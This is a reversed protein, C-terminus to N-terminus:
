VKAGRGRQALWTTLANRSYRVRGSPLRTFPVKGDRQWRYLTTRGVKLYDSAQDPTLLVDEPPESM